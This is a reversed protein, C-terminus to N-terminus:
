KRNRVYSHQLLKELRPLQDPTRIVFETDGLGHKGITRVDRLEGADWPTVDEPTISIYVDIKTKKVNLTFFSKKGVVYGVYYKLTRREVDPGLSRAFSDIQQFLDIIASPKSALHREIGGLAQAKSLLPKGSPGATGKIPIAAGGVIPGPPPNTSLQGLLRKLSAGLRVIDITKDDLASSVVEVFSSPPNDALQTLVHRVRLDTFVTEGWADLAGSEVAPRALSELSSIVGARGSEDAADLLDVEFLLKRDMVVPENTKYVQYVLGNTLVCWVVGENNAYNVTQSIFAKDALSKGLAKAEVFLKPKGEIRLAYDLFTGDFVKYERDVEHFDSLNWGLASLMPEIMHARTNAENAAKGASKLTEAVSLVNQVTTALSAM